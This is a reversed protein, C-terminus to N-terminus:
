DRIAVYGAGPVAGCEPCRDPTARLDYGCTVCTLNAERLRRVRRRHLVCWWGPLIATAVALAYFPVILQVVLPAPEYSFGHWSQWRAQGGAPAMTRVAWGDPGTAPSGVPFTVSTFWIRGEVAAMSFLGPSRRGEIGYWQWYSRVWMVGVAIFLLLSIPAALNFLKRLM